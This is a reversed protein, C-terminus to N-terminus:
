DDEMDDAVAPVLYIVEGEPLDTPEDVVLRGNKVQAKLAQMAVFDVGRRQGRRLSMVRARGRPNALPNETRLPAAVTGWFVFM